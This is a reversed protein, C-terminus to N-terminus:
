ILLIGVIAGTISAILNVHENTLMEAREFTAGLFSDMFCGVTGSIVSVVIASLPNPVIGLLFASVGIIFAGIIGVATGLVSVAGNTGPDVKQFTTILRPQQLVGIESALTDATATAIAGVFGGVLPLYYGGFAAMMFAVVGNSIVNKSSRRGEYEGLSRKYARSYRTALLTMILFIVLLLLWNAGASFIIIIGMLVMTLSGLLDLANRKYTIIGLIFLALVYGWNIMVSEMSM